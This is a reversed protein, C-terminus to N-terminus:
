ILHFRRPNLYGCHQHIKLKFYEIDKYGYAMRKLRKIKINFGESIASSIRKKFWNLIYQMKELVSCAFDFFSELGSFLAQDIWEYLHKQAEEINACEYTQLFSEKLLMARYIPQNIECLRNLTVSQRDTLKKKNKLLIFRQKCNTLEVLEEDKNKRAKLLEDRRVQDAAKNAKQAAHFRDLVIIANIAKNQSSSIYTRAGDLAVSEIKNCTERGLSDYYRDLVEAKRGKDNWTVLKEDIDIVNTM